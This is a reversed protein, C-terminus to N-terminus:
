DVTNLIKALHHWTLEFAEGSPIEMGCSLYDSASKITTGQIVAVPIDYEIGLKELIENFEERSLEFPDLGHEDLYEDLREMDTQASADRIRIIDSFKGLTLSYPNNHHTIKEQPSPALSWQDLDIYSAPDVQEGTHLSFPYSVNNRVEYHLHYGTSRGTTGMGAILDGRKVIDGASVELSNTDLHAYYTVIDQNLDSRDKSHYLVVLKGYGSTQTGSWDAFVVEGDEAAYIPTNRPGALDVGGHFVREGTFPDRREGFPSTLRTDDPNTPSFLTTGIDVPAPPIIKRIGLRRGADQINGMRAQYGLEQADSLVKEAETEKIFFTLPDNEEIIQGNVRIRYLHNYLWQSWDWFYNGIETRTDDTTIVVEDREYYRRELLLSNYDIISRHSLTMIMAAKYLQYLDEELPKKTQYLAQLRSYFRGLYPTLEEM